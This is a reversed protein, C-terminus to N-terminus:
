NLKDHTRARSTSGTERWKRHQTAQWEEQEQFVTRLLYVARACESSVAAIMLAGETQLVSGFGVNVWVVCVCEGM